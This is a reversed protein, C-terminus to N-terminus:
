GHPARILACFGAALLYPRVPDDPGVSPDIRVVSEGLCEVTALRHGDARFSWHTVAADAHFTWRAVEHRDYVDYVWGVTFMRQRFTGILTGDHDLMELGATLFDDGGCLYLVADPDGPKALRLRYPVGCKFHARRLLKTLESPAPSRVDLVPDARDDVRVAFATRAAASAESGRGIRLVSGALLGSLAGPTAHFHTACM